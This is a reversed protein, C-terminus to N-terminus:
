SRNTEKKKFKVHLPNSHKSVIEKQTISVTFADCLANAFRLGASIYRMVCVVIDTQTCEYAIFLISCHVRNLLLM